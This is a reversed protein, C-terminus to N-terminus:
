RRQFPFCERPLCTDFSTSKTLLKDAMSRMPNLPNMGLLLMDPLVSSAHEIMESVAVPSRAGIAPMRRSGDSYIPTRLLKRPWSSSLSSLGALSCRHPSWRPVRKCASSEFSDLFCAAKAPTRRRGALVARDRECTGFGKESSYPSCHVEIGTGVARLFNCRRNRRALEPKGIVGYRHM